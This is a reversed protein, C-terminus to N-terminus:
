LPLDAGAAAAAQIDTHARQPLLRDRPLAQSHGQFVSGIASVCSPKLGTKKLGQGCSGKYRIM